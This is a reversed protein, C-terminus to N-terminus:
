QSESITFFETNFIGNSNLTLSFLKLFRLSKKKGKKQCPSEIQRSVSNLAVMYLNATYDRWLEPKWKEGGYKFYSNLKINRPSMALELFRQSM